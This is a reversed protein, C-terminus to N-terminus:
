IADGEIHHLLTSIGRIFAEESSIQKFSLDLAEGAKLYLQSLAHNAIVTIMLNHPVRALEYGILLGSLYSSVSSNPLKNLVRKTRSSFILHTLPADSQATIVGDIFSSECDVQTSLGKGVMSHNLLLQYIEGTMFSTFALIQGNEIEAHKSHTGPLLILQALATNDLLGILQTEEGRMVDPLEYPSSTTMGPIIIAPNKNNLTFHHASQCIENLGAPLSLYPVEHWGQQSGIMGSMLILREPFNVFWQGIEAILMGEFDQNQVSLIGKPSEYQEIVHSQNGASELLFARFNTTGWDIAIWHTNM